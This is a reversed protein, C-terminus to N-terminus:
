IDIETGEFCLEYGRERIKNILGPLAELTHPANLHLLVCAGAHLGSLVNHQIESTSIGKWDWSDITWFAIKFGLEAAIRRVRNNYAGFPPRMLKAAPGKQIEQRLQEDSLKTLHPHSYSHNAVWHGSDAIDKVLDPHQKAWDGRLFFAAKVNQERLVDLIGGITEPTGYDDFTLLVRDTTNYARSEAQTPGIRWLAYQRPIAFWVKKLMTTFKLM